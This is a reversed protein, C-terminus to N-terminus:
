MVLDCILRTGDDRNNLGALRTAEDTTPPMVRDRWAPALRARCTACTCGGRCERRVPLGFRELLEMVKLGAEAPPSLRGGDPMRVNLCLPRGTAKLVPEATSATTDFPM